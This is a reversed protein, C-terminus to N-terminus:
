ERCQRGAGVRHIMIEHIKAAGLPAHVALAFRAAKPMMRSSASIAAAAISGTM